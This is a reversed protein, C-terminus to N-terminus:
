SGFDMLAAVFDDAEFASTRAPVPDGLQTLSPALTMAEKVVALDKEMLSAAVKDISDQSRDIQGSAAMQKALHTCDRWKTLTALKATCDANEAKLRQVEQALTRMTRAAQKVMERPSLTPMEAM